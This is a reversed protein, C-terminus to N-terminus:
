KNNGWLTIQNACQSIICEGYQPLYVKNITTIGYNLGILDKNLEKCNKSKNIDIIKIEGKECGAFLYDNDWICIDFLKGKYVKIKKLLEGSIFNWIRINGDYSGALLEIINDRNYIIFKKYIKDNKDDKYKHYIKGKNYDYSIVCGKNSTIIYTNFSKNDNYYDM